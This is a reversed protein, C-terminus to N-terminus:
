LTATGRRLERRLEGAIARATQRSTGGGSVTVNIDGINTASGGEGRYVPQVGANIATLQASFRRASAANIVVEGPSLMAPIVDTGQPRGGFALFSWATGGSQATMEPPSQVSWSAQALDWMATAAAQINGALDAMSPIAGLANQAAKAGEGMETAAQPKLQDMIGKTREAEQRAKQLDAEIDRPQGEPTQQLKKLAEQADLLQKARTMQWQILQKDFDTTTPLAFVEMAQKQLAAYQEPGFGKGGTESLQSFQQMLAGLAKTEEAINGGGFIAGKAKGAAEVLYISWYDKMAKNFAELNASMGGLAAKRSIEAAAIKSQDDMLKWVLEAQKQYEDRLRKEQELRERLPLDGILKAAFDASAVPLLVAVNVPTLGGEIQRRFDDIAAPAAFLRQVEAESVGGELATKVRKQLQDFKLAEGLDFNTGEMWEKKFAAMRQKLDESLAASKKADVPGKKDFLDLDTLIEKMLVKMRDVREQEDAAAKAATAARAASNAQLEKEAAIQKRIVAEVTYAADKRLWEYQLGKGIENAEQAYAAARQFIAQAAREQDPTEAGALKTAAQGAL